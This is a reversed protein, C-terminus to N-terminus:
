MDPAAANQIIASDHKLNLLTLCEENLNQLTVSSDLQLKSLLRTRTNADHPSQLDSVFLLCKFQDETLLGLRFRQCERNDVGAYTIFDDADCKAPQLCQYRASFLSSQGGFIQSLTRVTEEFTVDRPNRPLIFNTYHQHGLTGLKRLLLRVKWAGDQCALDVTFLDVYRKYWSEFTVGAKADYLFM